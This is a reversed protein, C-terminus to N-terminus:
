RATLCFSPDIKHKRARASRASIISNKLYRFELTSLSSVFFYFMAPNDILYYALATSINFVCTQLNLNELFALLNLLVVHNNVFNLWTLLM